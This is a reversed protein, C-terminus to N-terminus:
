DQENENKDKSEKEGVLSDWYQKCTEFLFMYTNYIVIAPIKGNGRVEDVIIQLNDIWEDPIANVLEYPYFSPIHRYLHIGGRYKGEYFRYNDDERLLYIDFLVNYLKDSKTQLNNGM